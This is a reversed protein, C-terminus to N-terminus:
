GYEAAVRYIGFAPSLGPDQYPRLPATTQRHATGEEWARFAAMSSWESLVVMRGPPDVLELLANRLLGPTGALQQSVRHYADVVAAPGTPPAVAFLLVCVRPGSM